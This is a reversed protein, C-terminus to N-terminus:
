EGIFELVALPQRNGRRRRTAGRAHDQFGLRGDYEIVPHGFPDRRDAAADDWAGIHGLGFRRHGDQGAALRNAHDRDLVVFPLAGIGFGIHPQQARQGGAQAHRQLVGAQEGLDLAAGALHRGEGVDAAFDGGAEVQGGDQSADGGAGALQQHHVAAGHEQQLGVALGERGDGHRPGLGVDDAFGARLQAHAQDALDGLGALGFDDAVRDVVRAADVNLTGRLRGLLLHHQGRELGAVAGDASHHYPALECCASNPWGSRSKRVPRARWAAMAMWFARSNSCAWLRALSVAARLWIPRSIEAM